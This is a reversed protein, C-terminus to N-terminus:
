QVSPWCSGILEEGRQIGKADGMRRDLVRGKKGDFLRSAQAPLNGAPVGLVEKQAVLFVCNIQHDGKFIGVDVELTQM